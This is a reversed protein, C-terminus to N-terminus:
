SARKKVQGVRGRSPGFWRHRGATSSLELQFAGANVSSYGPRLDALDQIELCLAPLLGESEFIFIRISVILRMPRLSLCVLFTM